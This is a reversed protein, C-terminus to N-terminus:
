PAEVKRNFTIKLELQDKEPSYRAVVTNLVVMEALEKALTELEPEVIEKLRARIREKLGVSIGRAIVSSVQEDTAFLQAM